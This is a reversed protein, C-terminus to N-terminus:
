DNVSLGKLYKLIRAKGINYFYENKEIGIFRRNTNICAIATSFAGATFDLILDNEDSYIKILEELLNIPKQTPHYREVEKPYKFVNTISKAGNLNFVSGKITDNFTKFEEKLERYVKFGEMKDINFKEILESYAVESCLEFQSSDWYFFHELKRHGLKKNIDKYKLDIYKLVKKAYQRVPHILNTDDIKTFISIDEFLNTLSQNSSLFNSAYNKLWIAGQNFTICAPLSTRLESTYLGLSFLIIRKKLRTVDSLLKYMAKTDLKVDWQANKIVGKTPDNSKLVGYPPDTLVLDISENELEQMVEMCDGNYLTINDNIVDKIIM